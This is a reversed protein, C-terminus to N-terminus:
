QDKSPDAPIITENYENVFVNDLELPPLMSLVIILLAAIMGLILLANGWRPLSIRGTMMRRITIISLVIGFLLLLLNSGIGLAEM